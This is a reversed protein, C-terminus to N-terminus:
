GTACGSGGRRSLWPGRGPRTWRSRPLGPVSFLEEWGADHGVGVARALEAFVAYARFPDGLDLAADAAANTWLLLAM